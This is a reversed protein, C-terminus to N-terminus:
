NTINQFFITHLYKIAFISKISLIILGITYVFFLDRLTKFRNPVKNNTDQAM